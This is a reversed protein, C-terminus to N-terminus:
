WIEPSDYEGVSLFKLAILSNGCGLFVLSTLHKIPIHLKKLFNMWLKAFIAEGGTHGLSPCFEKKMSSQVLLPTEFISLTELLAAM